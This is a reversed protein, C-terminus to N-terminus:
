YRRYWQDVYDAVAENWETLNTKPLYEMPTGRWPRLFYFAWVIAAVNYAASNVLVLTTDSMFHRHGALELTALALASYIGFGAVIGVSYHHWTLGLRSMFAIVVILLCTQLFRASREALVILEFVRDAGAGGNALVMMLLAAGTAIAGSIWVSKSVFRLSPYPRLVHKLTEFIVGLGLLVAVAESCWYVLAYPDGPYKLFLLTIERTLVVITYSFFMPFIKVLKRRLVVLAIATQLILPLVWLTRTVLHSFNMPRVALSSALWAAWL